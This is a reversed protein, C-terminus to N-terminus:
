RPTHKLIVKTMNVGRQTFYHVAADRVIAHEFHWEIVNGEAATIQRKVQDFMAPAGTNLFFPKFRRTNSDVFNLHGAKAEALVGDKLGDFKINNLEFSENWKRGSILEQYTKSADSMSENTTKWVGKALTKLYQKLVTKTIHGGGRVALFAGGGKSPSLLSLIDVLNIGINLIDTGVSTDFEFIFRGGERRASFLNGLTTNSIGTPVIFGEFEMMNRILQGEAIDPSTYEVVILSANALADSTGRLLGPISFSWLEEPSPGPNCPPNPCPNVTPGVSIPSANPNLYPAFDLTKDLVIADIADGIFEKSLQDNSRRGFEVLEKVINKSRQSYQDLNLIRDLGPVLNNNNQLLLWNTQSGTLGAIIGLSVVAAEKPSFFPESIMGDGGGLGGGPTTPTSLFSGRSISIEGYGTVYGVSLPGNESGTENGTGCVWDWEIQWGSPPTCKCDFVWPSHGVCFCYYPFSKAVWECQYGKNISKNIHDRRLTNSGKIISIIDGSSSVERKTFPLEFEYNDAELYTKYNEPTFHYTYWFVKKIGKSEILVLNDTDYISENNTTLSFTLTTKNDSKEKKAQHSNISFFDSPNLRFSEEQPINIYTNLNTSTILEKFLTNTIIEKNDILSVQLPKSEIVEQTVEEQEQILDDDKQCGLLFIFIFAIALLFTYHKFHNKM